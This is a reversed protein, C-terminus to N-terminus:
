EERLAETPQIGAARRAPIWSAFMVATLLLTIIAAFTVPDTPSVGYLFSRLVGTAALAVVLGCVAGVSAVAMGQQVVMRVVGPAHAGLAMRIGIERTRQSVSFSIVGYVGIAALTLAVAGFAVLLMTSFRTYATSDAVRSEMTRMDYVPLDPAMERLAARVTPILAEADGSTRVMLMMRGRPSQALPLYVDPKPLSDITNYRVDRVVGVVYASDFGGQGIGIPKGVPDENPWLSAAASESVLAAKRNGLRDGSEFQRGRVVPVDLVNPWNPAIWHVGVEAESGESQRPRDNRWLATGNCGGNLPPCDQVTAASVSPLGSLRIMVADYFGPMSDRAIGDPTNFRMTLIGETRFGPPISLLKDLSRLMLGSGSLLVVALAIEFAVLTNRSNFGRASAGRMRGNRLRDFLASRTAMLAPMSGFLLGTLLSLTFAVLLANTDLQIADFSVAGVGGLNRVRLARAPDLSALARVSAWALAVGLAGGLLSLLTSETLLQRVLRGRTAGIAMRVAIEHGRGAARVLFLHAVNACAILLVLGVAGFLIYLSRRVAPDVRTADLERAIAGHPKSVAMRDPYTRDVLAGLQRTEAIAQAPSVGPRLRAFAEFGHSWAYEVVSPDVALIPVWLEAQGTMGRFGRPLVGVVVFQDAGIRLPTGLISSDANFRRTFMTESILVSKPGGVRADEEPVFPRGLAPQVGLAALYGPGIMESKVREAGDSTRLTVELESVLGMASFSRAADRFVIFKPWSWIADDNAPREGHAPRTLSVKMMREPQAFPLPRLLLADVASFIATNAGIGIALTAAAVFTFAPARRFSRLAFRVDQQITEFTSLGAMHRSDERHSTLNGYRRRAAAMADTTADAHHQHMADLELHFAQEAALERDYSRPRLLVRLRHRLGDWTSM